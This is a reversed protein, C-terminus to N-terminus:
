AARVPTHGAVPLSTNIHNPHTKTGEELHGWPNCPGRSNYLCRTYPSRASGRRAQDWPSGAEYAAARLWRTRRHGCASKLPLCCRGSSHWVLSRWCSTPRTWFIEIIISFLVFLFVVHVYSHFYTHDFFINYIQIHQKLFLYLFHNTITRNDKHM